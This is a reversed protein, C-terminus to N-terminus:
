MAPLGIYYILVEATSCQSIAMIFPLAITSANNHKYIHM